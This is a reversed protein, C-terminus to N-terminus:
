KGRSIDRLRDWPGTLASAKEWIGKWPDDKQSLRRFVNKITYGRPNFTRSLAEEWDVPVAVPAGPKARVAYPAVATQAYSNRLYDVFVRGQRRDKRHEVTLHEPERASAAQAVSHAFEHVEDFHASRDLPIVVHLGRSGTTKVCPELGIERLLGRLSRAAQRVPEFDDGPPDLDLVLLDPNRLRDRRSLWVHPTICAQNALYVLTAANEVVVHDVKGDKKDVAVHDIWDPFYDSKDQQYFGESDIGDPFRHMTLPRGSVHPLITDAIRHYYDILHRKTIGDDPFLPKDLNTVEIVHGDVTVTDPM